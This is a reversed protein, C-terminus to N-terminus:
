QRRSALWGHGAYRVKERRAERERAVCVGVHRGDHVNQSWRRLVEKRGLGLSVPGKLVDVSEDRFEVMADDKM